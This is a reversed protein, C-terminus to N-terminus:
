LGEGEPRPDEPLHFWGDISEATGQRPVDWFECRAEPVLLLPRDGSEEIVLRSCDGLADGKGDSPALDGWYNGQAMM